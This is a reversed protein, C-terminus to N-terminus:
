KVNAKNYKPKYHQKDLIDAAYDEDEDKWYQIHIEKNEKCSIITNKAIQIRIVLPLKTPGFFLFTKANNFLSITGVMIYLKNSRSYITTCKNIIEDKPLNIEEISILEGFIFNRLENILKQDFTLNKTSKYHFGLKESYSLSINYKNRLTLLNCM